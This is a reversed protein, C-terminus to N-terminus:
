GAAFTDFLPLDVSEPAKVLGLHAWVEGRKIRTVQVQSVGYSEAIQKLSRQDHFIDRVQDATLTCRSNREGRASRGKKVMDQSNAKPAGIWLHDPNVCSPNDYPNNCNHCVFKGEPIPEDPHHLEWSVRHAKKQKKGDRFQGYGDKDKTGTWLWCPSATIKDVKEWFKEELPRKVFLM